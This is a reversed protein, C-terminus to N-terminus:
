EIVVAKAGSVHLTILNYEIRHEYRLVHLMEFSYEPANEVKGLFQLKRETQHM